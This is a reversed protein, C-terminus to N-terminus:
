IELYLWLMGPGLNGEKERKALNIAFEDEPLELAPVNLRKICGAAWEKMGDGLYLITTCSGDRLLGDVVGEAFSVDFYQVCYGLAWFALRHFFGHVPPKVAFGINPCEGEELNRNLPSLRPRWAAALRSVISAAETCSVDIFGLKPDPGRPIKFLTADPTTQAARPLALLLKLESQSLPADPEFSTPDTPTAM